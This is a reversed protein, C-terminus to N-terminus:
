VPVEIFEIDVRNIKWGARLGIFATRFITVRFKCSSVDDDPSVTLVPDIKV